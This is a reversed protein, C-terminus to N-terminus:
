HAERLERRGKEPGLTGRRSRHLPPPNRELTRERRGSPPGVTRGENRRIQRGRHRLRGDIPRRFPHACGQSDYSGASTRWYIVGIVLVVLAVAGAILLNTHEHLYRESAHGWDSAIRELENTKLEHRHESKMPASPFASASHYLWKSNGPSIQARPGRFEDHRRDNVNCATSAARTYTPASFRDLRARKAALRRAPCPNCVSASLGFPRDPPVVSARVHRRPATSEPLLSPQRRGRSGTNYPSTLVNLSLRLKIPGASRRPAGSLSGGRVSNCAALESRIVAEVM